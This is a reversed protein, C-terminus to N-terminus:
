CIEDVCNMLQFFSHYLKVGDVFINMLCFSAFGFTFGFCVTTYWADWSAPAGCQSYISQFFCFRWKLLWPAGLDRIQIWGFKSCLHRGPVTLSNVYWIQLFRELWDQSVLLCFKMKTEKNKKKIKCLKCKQSYFMFPYGSAQCM